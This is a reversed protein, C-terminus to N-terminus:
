DQMGRDPYRQCLSAVSGSAWTAAKPSPKTPLYMPTNWSNWYSSPQNWPDMHFPYVGETLSVYHHFIVMSNIPLDVTFQWTWYSQLLNGSPTHIHIYYPHNPLTRGHCKPCRWPHSHGWTGTIESSTLPISDVGAGSTTHFVLEM